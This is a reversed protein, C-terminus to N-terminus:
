FINGVCEIGFFKFSIIKLGRHRENDVVVTCCLFRANMTFNCLFNLHFIGDRWLKAQLM